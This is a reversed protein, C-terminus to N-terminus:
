LAQSTKRNHLIKGLLYVLLMALMPILMDGAPVLEGTPPTTGGNPDNPIGPRGGTSTYSASYSQTHAAVVENHIASFSTTGKVSYSTMPTALVDMTNVGNFPSMNPNTEAM